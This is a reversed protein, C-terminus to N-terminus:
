STFGELRFNAGGAPLPEMGDLRVGLASALGARGADTLRVARSNPLRHIWARDLLCRAIAAGLSGALHHRQETWDLCYRILPRRGSRLGPLDVGLDRMATEGADTLRYDVDHGPSSLRDTPATQPHHLGDGGELLGADVLRGMVAVGLRGALHDYCMRAMRMQHARSGQRLSRVPRSPALPALAELAQVVEPRAIRYYRHRGQREVELMGAGVLRGLHESATSAAVEAERALVSAALARGDALAFLIRARGADALLAAPVSVDVLGEM